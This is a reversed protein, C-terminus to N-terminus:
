IDFIFLKSLFLNMGTIHKSTEKAGNSQGPPLTACRPLLTHCLLRESRAALSRVARKGSSELARVLEVALTQAKLM